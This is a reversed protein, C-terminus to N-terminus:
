NSHCQTVTVITVNYSFYLEKSTMVVDFDWSIVSLFLLSEVKYEDLAMSM